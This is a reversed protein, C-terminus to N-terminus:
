LSTGQVIKRLRAFLRKAGQYGKAVEDQLLGENGLDFTPYRETLYYGTVQQMLHRYRELFTDYRVADDLLAELDHIKKLKWGRSLLFGKLAKEIAQQLHFAADEIDGEELRAKVRKLDGAAKNLWDLPYSSEESTRM